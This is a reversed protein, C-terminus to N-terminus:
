LTRHHGVGDFAAPTNGHQEILWRVTELCSRVDDLAELNTSALLRRTTSFFKRLTIEAKMLQQGRLYLQCCGGGGAVVVV